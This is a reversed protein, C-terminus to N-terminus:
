FAKGVAAPKSEFPSKQPEGSHSGGLGKIKFLTRVNSRRNEGRKNHAAAILPMLKRIFFITRNDL